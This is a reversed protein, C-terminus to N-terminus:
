HKATVEDMYQRVEPMAALKEQFFNNVVNLLASRARKVAIQDPSRASLDERLEILLSVIEEEEVGELASDLQAHVLEVPIDSGPQSAEDVTKMVAYIQYLVNAPEDFLERIFAAESFRGNLRFVNYMRKAAKGVNPEEGALYKAVESELQEVYGDLADSSVNSILKTFLPVSDTDLYIEQFYPDLYGDLPIVDGTPAEWTADIM